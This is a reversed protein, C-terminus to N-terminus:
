FTEYRDRGIVFGRGTSLSRCRVGDPLSECTIGNPTVSRGHHLTPAPMNLSDAMCVIEAQGDGSLAVGYGWDFECSAPKPPPEWTRRMIDCGVFSPPALSCGVNGDPTRFTWEPEGEAEEFTPYASPSTAAATTAATAATVTTTSPTPAPAQQVLPAPRTCGIAVVLLLPLARM